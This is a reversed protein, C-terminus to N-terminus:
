TMWGRRKVLSPHRWGCFFSPGRKRGARVPAGGSNITGRDSVAAVRLALYFLERRTVRVRQGEAAVLCGEARDAGRRFIEDNFPVATLEDYNPRM